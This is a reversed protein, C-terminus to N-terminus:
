APLDQARLYEATERDAPLFTELALESVTVDMPTNFTAIVSVFSLTRGDHDIVLPLAFPASKVIAAALEEGCPEPSPFASVEDFLERLPASRGMALQRQMQHLLHGRWEGFNRIRPAIGHPHLMLRIANVPPTLLEPAVGDMMIQVGRNAAVVQYTGDVILAPFPEYGRLLQDLSERLEQMSPDDLNREPFHPAFGAAVLLANRDRVPVDLHDALRLVMARSPQSRGTEIFSIHRASSDARMALDLQSMRRRDRWERLMPGVGSRTAVTTMVRRYDSMRDRSSVTRGREALRAADEAVSVPEWM